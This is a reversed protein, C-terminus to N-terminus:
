TSEKKKLWDVVKRFGEKGDLWHYTNKPIFPNENALENSINGIEVPLLRKEKLIGTNHAISLEINVWNSELSDESLLLIFYKSENILKEIKSLIKDGGSIEYSDLIPQFGASELMYHLNDAAGKQKSSHSIFVSKNIAAQKNMNNENERTLVTPLIKYDKLIPQYFPIHFITNKLRTLTKPLIPFYYSINNQFISSAPKDWLELLKYEDLALSLAPDNFFAIELKSKEINGLRIYLFARLWSLHDSNTKEQDNLVQLGKEPRGICLWCFAGLYNLMSHQMGSKAANAVLDAGQSWQGIVQNLVVNSIVYHVSDIRDNMRLIRKIGEIDNSGACIMLLLEVLSTNQSKPILEM